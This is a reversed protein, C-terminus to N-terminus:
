VDASDATAQAHEKRHLVHFHRALHLFALRGALWHLAIVVVVITVVLAIGTPGVRDLYGFATQYNTGLLDGIVIWVGCYIASGLLTGLSFTPVSIDAVGSVFSSLSRVLPTVRIATVGLLGHHRLWLEMHDARTPKLGIFRGYREIAKSGYRRGLAYSIYGFLLCGLACITIALGANVKGHNDAAALSGLFLMVPEVPLGIGVCEIGVWVAAVLYVLAVPVGNLTNIVATALHEM